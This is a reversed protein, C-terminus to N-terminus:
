ISMCFSYSFTCMYFSCDSYCWHLSGQAPTQRPCLVGTGQASETGGQHGTDESSYLESGPDHATNDQLLFCLPAFYTCVVCWGCHVVFADGGVTVRECKRRHELSCWCWLGERFEADKKLTTSVISLYPPRSMFICCFNCILKVGCM